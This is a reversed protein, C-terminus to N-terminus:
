CVIKGCLVFVHKYSYEYFCQYYINPIILIVVLLLSTLYNVDLCHFVQQESFSYLVAIYM